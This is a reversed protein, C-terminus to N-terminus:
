HHLSFIMMSVMDQAITELELTGLNDLRVTLEEVFQVGCAWWLLDIGLQLDIAYENAENKKKKDRKHSLSPITYGLNM